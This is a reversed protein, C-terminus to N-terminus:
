LWAPPTTSFCGSFSWWWRTEDVRRNSCAFVFELFKLISIPRSRVDRPSSTYGVLTPDALGLPIQFVSGKRQLWLNLRLHIRTPGFGYGRKRWRLARIEISGCRDSVGVVADIHCRLNSRKIPASGPPLCFLYDIAVSVNSQQSDPTPNDVAIIALRVIVEHTRM